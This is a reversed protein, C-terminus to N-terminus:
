PPRGNSVLYMSCVHDHQLKMTPYDALRPVMIIASRSSLRSANNLYGLLKVGSCEEYHWMGIDDGIITGISKLVRM